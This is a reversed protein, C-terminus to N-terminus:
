ESHSQQYVANLLSEVDRYKKKGTLVADLLRRADSESHGLSRLVEFTESVVDQEVEAEYTTESEVLLAFKPVKRRLKAVIRESVAPGIGPLTSLMKTNQEEIAGAVEAVPRVMARLAKKAGVGDVSCFLEFFEREIVSLFGVLRPTLRGQMPNGELYEITFLSIEEGRLSQLQRRTFEPILVEYELPGVGLTLFDDGLHVLKGNIKTIM